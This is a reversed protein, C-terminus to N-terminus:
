PSPWVYPTTPCGQAHLPIYPFTPSHPLEIPTHSHPNTHPHKRPCVSHRPFWLHAVCLHCLHANMCMIYQHNIPAHLCSPYQLPICYRLIHRIPYQLSITYNIPPINYPINYPYIHAHLISTYAAHTYTDLYHYASTCQCLLIYRHM